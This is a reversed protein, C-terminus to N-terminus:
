LLSTKIVCAHPAVKVTVLFDQLAGGYASILNFYTLSLM